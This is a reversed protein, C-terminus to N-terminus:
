HPHVILNRFGVVPWTESKRGRGQSDPHLSKAVAGDGHRGAAMHGVTIAM